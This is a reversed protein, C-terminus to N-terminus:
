RRIIYIYIQQRSSLCRHRHDLFPNLLHLTGKNNPLLPEPRFLTANYPTLRSAFDHFRSNTNAPLVRKRAGTGSRWINRSRMIRMIRQLVRTCCARKTIETTPWSGVSPQRRKKKKKQRQKKKKEAGPTTPSKRESSEFLSPSFFPPTPRVDSVCSPPLFRLARNYEGAVTKEHIVRYLVPPARCASSFLGKSLLRGNSFWEM